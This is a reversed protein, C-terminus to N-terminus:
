PPNTPVSVVVPATAAPARAATASTQMTRSREMFPMVFMNFIAGVLTIVLLFPLWIDLDIGLNVTGTM